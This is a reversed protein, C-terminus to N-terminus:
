KKRRKPTTVPKAEIPKLPEPSQWPGRRKGLVATLEAQVAQEIAKATAMAAPVAEAAKDAVAAQSAEYRVLLGDFVDRRRWLAHLANASDRQQPKKKDDKDCDALRGAEDLWVLDLRECVAEARRLAHLTDAAEQVPKGALPGGMDLKQPLGAAASAGGRQLRVLSTVGRLTLLQGLRDGGGGDAHAHTFWDAVSLMDAARSMDASPWAAPWLRAVLTCAMDADSFVPVDDDDASLCGRAGRPTMGFALHVQDFVSARAAAAVNAGSGGAVASNDDAVPGQHLRLQQRCARVDAGREGVVAQVLDQPLDPRERALLCVVDRDSMGYARVHKLKPSDRMKSLERLVPTAWADTAIIVVPTQGDGVALVTKSALKEVLLSDADDIVLCQPWLTRAHTVEHWHKLMAEGTFMGRGGGGGGGDDTSDSGLGVIRPGGAALAAQRVGDTKGCGAPGFVFLVPLPRDQQNCVRSMWERVTQWWVMEQFPM